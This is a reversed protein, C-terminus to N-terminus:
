PLGWRRRVVWELILLMMIIILFIPLQRVEIKEREIIKDKKLSIDKKIEQYNNFDYYKGDTKNSIDKLLDKNLKTREFELFSPLVDFNKVNKFLVKDDSIAEIEIKYKGENAVEFKGEYRNNLSTDQTYLIDEIKGQEGTVKIKIDDIKKDSNIDVFFNVEDNDQYNDRDLNITLTEDLKISLFLLIQYILKSYYTASKSVDPNKFYMQWLGDTFIVVIKSHYYKRLVIFPFKSQGKEAWVLINVEPKIKDIKNLSFVTGVNEWIKINELVDDSLSVLPHESNNKELQVKFVDEFYNKRGTLNFPLLDDIYNNKYGDSLFGNEGGLLLLSGRKNLVFDRIEKLEIDSFYNPPVDQIVLIDSTTITSLLNKRIPTTQKKNNVYQPYFNNKDRFIFYTFDFKEFKSIERKLFALEPHPAASLFVGKFKNKSINIYFNKFNNQKIKEDETPIIEMQYEILGSKKAKFKLEVINEENKLVIDSSSILGKEQKLVVKIKEGKANEQFIVAKVLVDEEQVAIRPYIVETLKIDKLGDKGIGISFVKTEKLKELSSYVEGSNNIGDSLLIVESKERMVESLAKELSTSKGDPKITKLNHVIKAESSFEIIKLHFNSGWFNLLDKLINIAKDFRTTGVDPITMSESTDILFTIQKKQYYKKTKYFFFNSIFLLVILIVISRLTLLTIKPFLPIGSINKRYLYFVLIGACTILLIEVLTMKNQSYNLKTKKLSYTLYNSM